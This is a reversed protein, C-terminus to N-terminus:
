KTILEYTTVNWGGDTEKASKNLATVLGKISKPHMNIKNNWSHGCELTYGHYKILEELTGNSLYERCGNMGSRTKRITYTKINM